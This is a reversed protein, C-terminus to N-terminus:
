AEKLIIDLESTVGMRENEREFRNEIAKPEKSKRPNLRAIQQEERERQQQELM